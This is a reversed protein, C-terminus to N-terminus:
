SGVLVIHTFTRGNKIIGKSDYLTFTVKFAAPSISGGSDQRRWAIAGTGLDTGAELYEVTFNDVGKALYMPLQSELNTPDIVPPDAWEDAACPPNTRWQELSARYYEGDWSSDATPAEPALITQRRLLVRDRPAPMVSYSNADPPGYYLSAVNGVITQGGYQRTSQFDGNAFFAVGDSHTTETHGNVTETMTSTKSYGGYQAILGRFDADLQGTIVRLKQMIEANAMAMRQSETSVRFIVGAFSLIIALIGMAVVLEILTFARRM